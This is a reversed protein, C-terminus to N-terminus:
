LTRKRRTEVSPIVFFRCTRKGKIPSWRMVIDQSIESGIVFAKDPIGLALNLRSFLILDLLSLVSALIQTFYLIKRYPWHKLYRQYTAIGVLSVVSNIIGLVSTFFEKSFHPGDKYEHADDTYFYFSGGDIALSLSNCIVFFANIKAIVPDLFLGFATIEFAAVMLAVFANAEVSYNLMGVVMLALPGIFMAFVLVLLHKNNRLLEDRKALSEMPTQKQEDLYNLFSPIIVFAAPIIALVFPFQVSIYEISPGILITALLGFAVIGFWVFSVLDPGASPNDRIKRSYTAETLLDCTSIQVNALFLCIVITGVSLEELEGFGLVGLCIVGMVSSGIIYPLKNYGYVAFMDSMMGILPKMAWPLGVIGTLIQMRPGPVFKRKFIYNQTPLIISFVFGKLLHQAACIYLLFRASFADALEHIIRPM